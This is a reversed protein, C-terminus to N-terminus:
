TATLSMDTVTVHRHPRHESGTGPAYATRPERARRWANATTDHRCFDSVPVSPRCPSRDASAPLPCDNRVACTGPPSDSPRTRRRSPAIAQRGSRRILRARKPKVRWGRQHLRAERGSRGSRRPLAARHSGHIANLRAAPVGQELTDDAPARAKRHQVLLVGRSGCRGALGSGPGGRSGCRRAWRALTTGALRCRRRVSGPVAAPM